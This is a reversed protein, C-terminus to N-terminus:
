LLAADNDKENHGSSEHLSSSTDPAHYYDKVGRISIDNLSKASLSSPYLYSNFQIHNIGALGNSRLSVPNLHEDVITAITQTDKIISVTDALNEQDGDVENITIEIGGIGLAKKNDLPLIKPTPPINKDYYFTAHPACDASIYANTEFEIPSM